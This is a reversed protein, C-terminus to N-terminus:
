PVYCCLGMCDGYASHLASYLTDATGTDWSKYAITDVDHLRETPSFNLDREREKERERERERERETTIKKKPVSTQVM